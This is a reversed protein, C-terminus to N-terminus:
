FALNLTRNNLWGQITTRSLRELLPRFTRYTEKECVYSLLTETSQKKKQLLEGLFNGKTLYWAHFVKALFDPIKHLYPIIM